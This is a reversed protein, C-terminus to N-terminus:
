DVKATIKTLTADNSLYCSCVRMERAAGPPQQQGSCKRNFEIAYFGMLFGYCTLRMDNNTAGWLVWNMGWCIVSSRSCMFSRSLLKTGERWYMTRGSFHLNSSGNLFSILFFSVPLVKPASENTIWWCEYFWHLFSLFPPLSYWRSLEDRQVVVAGWKERWSVTCESWWKVTRELQGVRASIGGTVHFYSLFLFLLFKIRYFSDGM